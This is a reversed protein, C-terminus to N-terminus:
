VMYAKMIKKDMDPSNLISTRLLLVILSEFSTVQDYWIILNHQYIYFNELITNDFSM